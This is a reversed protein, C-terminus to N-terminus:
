SLDPSVLSPTARVAKARLGVAISGFVLGLIGGALVFLPRRPRIQDEESPPIAPDIIRFAFEERVNALMIQNFQREILANIGQQIGMISTKDLEGRLYAISKEAEVIARFRTQDNLREVLNNVWSAALDPDRWEVGLLLLGSDEQREISIVDDALLRYADWYEPPEDTWNQGDWNDRFLEPMLEESDIFDKLFSYSTLVAIYENSKDQPRINVGALEALSGFGGLTSAGNSGGEEGAPVLVAQARFIDELSLALGASLAVTSVLTLWFIVKHKGILRLSDELTSFETDTRVTPV